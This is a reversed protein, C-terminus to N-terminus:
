HQRKNPKSVVSHAGSRRRLLRDRQQLSLPEVPRRLHHHALASRLHPLPQLRTRGAKPSTSTTIATITFISSTSPQAQASGSITYTGTLGTTGSTQATVTPCNTVVGGFKALPAGVM